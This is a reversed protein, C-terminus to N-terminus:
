LAQRCCRPVDSIMGGLGRLRLCLSAVNELACEEGEGGCPTSLVGLDGDLRFNV